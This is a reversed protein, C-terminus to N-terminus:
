GHHVEALHDLDKIIDQIAEKQALTCGCANLHGGGGYKKAVGVIPIERSRLECLIRGSAVDDTFNAWIPIEKIGSLQNALSRSATFSDIQHLSLFDRDIFRYGVGHQSIVVEKLYDAKMKKAQLTEVYMSNYIENLDIGTALLKAAIQFTEPKVSSFLFRGTDGVIGMYLAKAAIQPLLYRNNIIIRAILESASSAETDKYYIAPNLDSDNQHHDIVMLMKAHQFSQDFLMQEVATDVIIMLSQNLITQDINDFDRFRNLSNTDGIVYINKRPFSEKLAYFLGFQAGYADYDPAKHRSIVISDHKQIAQDIQKFM